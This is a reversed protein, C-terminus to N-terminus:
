KIADLCDWRNEEYQKNFFHYIIKNKKPLAKEPRATNILVKRKQKTPCSAIRKWRWWLFLVARFSMEFWLVIFEFCHPKSNEPCDSFGTAPFSAIAEHRRHIHSAKELSLVYRHLQIKQSIRIKRELSEEGTQAPFCTLVFPMLFDM